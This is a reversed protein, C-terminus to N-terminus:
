NSSPNPGTFNLTVPCSLLGLTLVWSRLDVTMAAGKLDIEHRAACHTAFSMYGEGLDAGKGLRFRWPCGRLWCRMPQNACAALSARNTKAPASNRSSDDIASVGVEGV